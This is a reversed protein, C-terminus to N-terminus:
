KFFKDYDEPLYHEVAKVKGEASIFFLTPVGSIAYERAVKGNIDLLCIDEIDMGKLFERVREASEELNIMILSLGKEEMAEREAAFMKLQVRCHPCWTTWFFIIGPKDEMMESLSKEKGAVSKLTFDKAEKGVMPHKLVLFQGM